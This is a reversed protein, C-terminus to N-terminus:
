KKLSHIFGLLVYDVVGVAAGIAVAKLADGSQRYFMYGVGAGILIAGFLAGASFVIKKSPKM